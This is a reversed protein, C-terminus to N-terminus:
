VGTLQILRSNVPVAQLRAYILLAQLSCLPPNGTVPSAHLSLLIKPNQPYYECALEASKSLTLSTYM